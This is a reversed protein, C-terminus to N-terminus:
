LHLASEDAEFPEGGRLHNFLGSAPGGEVLFAVRKIESFNRAATLTFASATLWESRIGSPAPEISDQSLNLYLTGEKDLFVTVLKAQPGFTGKSWRGAQPTGLDTLLEQFVNRMREGRDRGAPVERVEEVLLQGSEGPLCLTAPATEGQQHFTPHGSRPALRERWWALGAILGLVAAAFVLRRAISGTRGGALDALRM